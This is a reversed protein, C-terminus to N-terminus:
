FPIEDSDADPTTTRQRALLVAGELTALKSKALDQPMTKKVSGGVPNIYRVRVRLKGELDTEHTIVLEVKKGIELDGAPNNGQLGCKILNEITYQRAKESFSGYYVAKQPGNADAWSFTVVVQPDGKKTESIGHSILNAVYTGPIIM